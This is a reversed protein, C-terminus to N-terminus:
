KKVFQYGFQGAVFTVQGDEEWIRTDIWTNRGWYVGLLIYAYRYALRLGGYLLIRINMHHRDESTRSSHALAFVYTM